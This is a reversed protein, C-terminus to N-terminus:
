VELIHEIGLKLILNIHEDNFSYFANKGERRVKALRSQKLIRLQHSVASQNMNVIHVLDTVSAEGDKLALLIKLRTPDGFIKYFEALDIMKVDDLKTGPNKM